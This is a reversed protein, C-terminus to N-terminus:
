PLVPVAGFCWQAPVAQRSAWVYALRSPEKFVLPLSVRDWVRLVVVAGFSLTLAPTSNILSGRSNITSNRRLWGQGYCMGM